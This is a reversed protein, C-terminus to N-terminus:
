HEYISMAPYAGLRPRCVRLSSQVACERQPQNHVVINFSYDVQRIWFCVLDVVQADVFRALKQEIM